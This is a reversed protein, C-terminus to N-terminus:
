CEYPVPINHERFLSHTHQTHTFYVPNKCMKVLPNGPSKWSNLGFKWSWVSIETYVHVHLVHQANLAYAPEYKSRRAKFFMNIIKFEAYIFMRNCCIEVVKGFSKHNVNKGIVMKFHWSKELNEM